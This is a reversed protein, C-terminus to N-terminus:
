INSRGPEQSGTEARIKVRRRLHPRSFWTEFAKTECPIVSACSQGKMEGTEHHLFDRSANGDQM